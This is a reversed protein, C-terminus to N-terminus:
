EELTKRLFERADDLDVHHDAQSWIIEGEPSRIVMGHDTWGLEEVVALGEPTSSDVNAAKVQGPFEEELGSM